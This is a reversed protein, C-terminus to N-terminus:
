KVALPELSVIVRGNHSLINKRVVDSGTYINSYFGVGTAAMYSQTAEQVRSDTHGVAAPDSAVVLYREDDHSRFIVSLVSGRFVIQKGSFERKVSGDAGYLLVRLALLTKGEPESAVRVIYSTSSSPLEYAAYLSPGSTDKFCASVATIRATTKNGNKEPNYALKTAGMLDPISGCQAATLDLLPPPGAEPTSCGAVFGILMLAAFSRAGFAIKM